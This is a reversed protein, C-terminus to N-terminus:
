DRSRIVPPPEVYWRGNRDRWRTTIIAHKKLFFLDGKGTIDFVAQRGSSGSGSVRLVHCGYVVFRTFGAREMEVNMYVVFNSLDDDTFFFRKIMDRTYLSTIDKHVLASCLGDIDKAYSQAHVTTVCALFVM